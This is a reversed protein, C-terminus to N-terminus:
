DADDLGLPLKIPGFWTIVVPNIQDFCLGDTQGVRNEFFIMVM